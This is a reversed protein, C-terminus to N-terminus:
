FWEIDQIPVKIVCPNNDWSSFIMELDFGKKVCSLCYEIGQRQFVFPVSIRTPKFTKDLGVICHFYKRPSTYDVFHVVCWYEDEMEFAVSSGRLHRFIWPSEHKETIILKNDELHGIQLPHWKYIIKNTGEIPIWNKECEANEPSEMVQCENYKAEEINYIGSIMRIKDSYEMSTALFRLVGKEDHYVRVDELGRIRSEKRPLTVSSDKMQFQIDPRWCVNETRVLHHDAYKGDKMQYSGDRTNIDYNVFRVNHYEIGLHTFSCVSSPHFDLGVSDRLVPHSVLKGKLPQIYFFMNQYVRDKHPANDRFLYRISDKLGEERKDVYYDLITKEYDFLYDYVDKEIFLADNPLSISKGLKMYHYAKYQQGQERFYRTLKYIGESRRPHFKYAKLMWEEFKIENKLILYTQAIMYHSYWVEEYWGGASIRKKYYEIAKEWQGLSHYTQALYFLYRANQPEDLIGQQLLELDRIFKDSKCGGDNRDDIYCITKPLFTCEVDWYEHTVGKCIAEKDMRILRCNSYELNGNCQIMSYGPQTLKQERLKGPVFVMDADLLLGYTNELDYKESILYECACKFSATRNFGFNKWPVVSVNGPHTKLFENAIEVTNDTSGTDCICFADVIGELAKLCRELIRSENKIM